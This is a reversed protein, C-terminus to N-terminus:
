GCGQVRRAKPTVQGTGQTGKSAPTAAGTGQTGRFGSGSAGHSVRPMSQVSAPAVSSSQKRQKM